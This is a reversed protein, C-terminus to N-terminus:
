RVHHKSESKITKIYKNLSKQMADTRLKVRKEDRKSAFAAVLLVVILVAYLIMGNM